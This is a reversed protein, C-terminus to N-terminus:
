FKPLDSPQLCTSANTKNCCKYKITLANGPCERCIQYGYLKCYSSTLNLTDSYGPCDNKATCKGCGASDQSFCYNSSCSTVSRSYGSSCSKRCTTGNLEYGSKCVACQTGSGQKCAACNAVTCEIDAQCFIKSTDFPCKIYAKEGCDSATMTYGLAACDPASTCEAAYAPGSIIVTGLLLYKIYHKM